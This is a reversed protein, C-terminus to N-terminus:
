WYRARGGSTQTSAHLAQRTKALLRHAAVSLRFDKKPGALMSRRTGSPALFFQLRAHFQQM